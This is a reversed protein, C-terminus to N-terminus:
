LSGGGGWRVITDGGCRICFGRLFSFSHAYIHAAYDSFSKTQPSGVLAVFIVMPLFRIKEVIGIHHNNYSTSSRIYDTNRHYVMM